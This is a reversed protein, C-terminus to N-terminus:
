LDLRKVIPRNPKKIKEQNLRALSYTQLVRDTEKLNHLKNAYLQEYYDWSGKYNQPVLQIIEEKM